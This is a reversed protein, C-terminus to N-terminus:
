HFDRGLNRSFSACRKSGHAKGSASAICFFGNAFVCIRVPEVSTSFAAGNGGSRGRLLIAYDVTPPELVTKLLQQIKKDGMVGIFYPDVHEVIPKSLALLGSPAVM